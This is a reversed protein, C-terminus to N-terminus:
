RSTPGLPSSLGRPHRVRRGPPQVVLDPGPPTSEDKQGNLSMERRLDEVDPIPKTGDFYAHLDPGDIVETVILIRSLQELFRRYQTLVETARGHAETVLRSVEEDVVSALDNSLEQAAGPYLMRGEASRFGDSGFSLPGVRPSMGYETVM